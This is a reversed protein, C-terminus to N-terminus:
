FIVFMFPFFAMSVVSFSDIESVKKTSQGGSTNVDNYFHWNCLVADMISCNNISILTVSSCKFLPVSSIIWSLPVNYSFLSKGLSFM